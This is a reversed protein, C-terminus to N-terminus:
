SFKKARNLHDFSFDKEVIGRRSVLTSICFKHKNIAEKLLIEAQEHHNFEEGEGRM